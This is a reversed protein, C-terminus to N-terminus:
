FPLNFAYVPLYYFFDVPHVCIHNRHINWGAYRCCGSLYHSNSYFCVPRHCCTQHFCSHYKIGATVIASRYNYFIDTKRLFGDFCHFWLQKSIFFAIQVPQRFPLLVSIFSRKTLCRHNGSTFLNGARCTKRCRCSVADAASHHFQIGVM